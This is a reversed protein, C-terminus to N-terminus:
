KKGGFNKYTYIMLLIIEVVITTIVGLIFDLM